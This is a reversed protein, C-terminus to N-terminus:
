GFGEIKMKRKHASEMLRDRRRERQSLSAGKWRNLCVNGMLELSIENEWPEQTGFPIFLVLWLKQGRRSSVMFIILGPECDQSGDEKQCVSLYIHRTGTHTVTPQSPISARSTRWGTRGTRVTWQGEQSWRQRRRPWQSLSSAVRPWWDSPWMQASPLRDREASRSLKKEGRGGTAKCMSVCLLTRTFFSHQISLLFLMRELQRACCFFVGAATEGTWARFPLMEASSSGRWKKKKGGKQTGAWKFCWISETPVTHLLKLESTEKM